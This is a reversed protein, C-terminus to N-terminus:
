VPVEDSKTVSLDFNLTVSEANAAYKDLIKQVSQKVTANFNILKKSPGEIYFNGPSPEFVAGVLSITEVKTKAKQQASSARVAVFRAVGSNDLYDMDHENGCEIIFTTVIDTYEPQDAVFAFVDRQILDLHDEVPQGDIFYRGAEYNSESAEGTLQSVRRSIIQTM